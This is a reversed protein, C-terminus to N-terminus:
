PKINQNKIADLANAWARGESLLSYAIPQQNPNLIVSHFGKIIECKAYPFLHLVQEQATPQYNM